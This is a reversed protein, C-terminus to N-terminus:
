ISFAVAVAPKETKDGAMSKSRGNTLEDNSRGAPRLTRSGSLEFIAREDAERVRLLKGFPGARWTSAM